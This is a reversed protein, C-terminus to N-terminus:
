LVVGWNSTGDLGYKEIIMNLVAGLGHGVTGSTNGNGNWKMISFGATSNVQITVDVSGDSNTSTTGAMQKGSGHQQINGNGNVENDTANM